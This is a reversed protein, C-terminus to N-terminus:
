IRGRDLTRYQSAALLVGKTKFPFLMPDSEISEQIAQTIPGTKASRPNAELNLSDIIHVMYKARVLGVIKTIEGVTQKASSEFKIIAGNVKKM